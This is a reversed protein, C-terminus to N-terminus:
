NNGQDNKRTKEPVPSDEKKMDSISKKRLIDSFKDFDQKYFLGFGQTYPSQKGTYPDNYRNFVKFRIKDTIKYEIDFDGILQDNTTSTAVNTGGVDFNGNIVVKDNLLQTSLALQLENSNIDKTGPRYVFGVDFDNSIQSLWNSLQNSLMETTTVAMASTGTSTTSSLVSENASPDSYFNNMVLLYIFQRSLEEETSIVNKLYERTSEDATPLYIDLGVVPNFLKGSLNIQCEVPIRDTFRSDHLLEYLSAKTKYVAKMDINADYINGNFNIKGGNEVKFSKNLINKLTFLYDGEDVIYDGYIKFNGFQDYNISLNGSGHGKMIDGVKPDFILQIEADPTVELDFNLLIATKGSPVTVPAPYEEKKRVTDRNIFSVFSYDSVTETNSLPIFFKTNKGTKASIDFELNDPGSKITTVGSAFATGYFLDNDKPRTNLVMCDHTNIMLDASFAKFYKHHIYGTLTAANGKEDNVKVNKFIINNEDFRVSDNIIYKTQLFDIKLSANEAMLAGKLVLYGPKGSLNVKGTATGSIGSAFSNLLPNLLEIPLKDATGDLFVQEAAPDYYGSIDIQKKGEENNAVRIDAVKKDSNWASIVSVDGLSSQLMSFDSINLNSVILPQHFVNTIQIRGNATGKFSLQLQDPNNKSSIFYNIPSIDIGKFEFLLTDAPNETVAGDVLYYHDKNSIYLKHVSVADSDIRISSGAIKWLNNRSYMDSSDISISFVPWKNKPNKDFIGRASFKGRNLINDKNDWALGFDFTDPRTNLNILFGKLESNGLLNLSSSSLSAKLERDLINAEFSLDKFVINKFDLLKSNAKIMMISDPFISGSVSSKDSLHLGTRFFNNLKDTNKFNISFIFNNNQLEPEKSNVPIWSPMLSSLAKKFVSKLGAFNYQGRLDADAYDTRISIAPRSNETFTRITFDYLDLTKGFKVLSSNLLKIEGDLNDINTGRFDATLLMSLSSSSDTKDFNLNHLNAKALNLTFDFEPLEGQFNFLGLIDMKINGESIKVSGDWAKESFNGNIAINRYKYKNIEISDVAGELKLDFKRFSYADGDVNAKMSINGLKDPTGTLYGLAISNLSILGKIKFHNLAEPRLLLDTRISGADTRFNGYTVFDTTFGTFSGDFSITGMKSLFEPLQIPGHGPIKIKGIDGATTRLRNVGIYIFSNEIKPLGSFDFDCNLSTYNGYSFEIDRGRLESVTGFIRGSLWFAENTRGMSPIFYKMDSLSILSKQLLIDLKVQNTFNRFAGPSDANIRLYGINLISSDCNISVSSLLFNNRGIAVGGKLRRVTFGGSETFGLDYINFSTSDNKVALNEIIGNLADLHLNNFDIAGSDKREKMNIFSIRANNLDIENIRITSKKKSLTDPKSKLLNLYWVLNMEGASDTILGIVPDFISIKGLAFSQNKFDIHRIGVSLKKAYILTDNNKDKILINSIDLKNFFRYELRGVSITSRIQESFHSSIRKVILTQIEPIRLLLGAMTPFVTIIGLAIIFFKISKKINKIM